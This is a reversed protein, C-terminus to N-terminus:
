DIVMMDLAIQGFRFVMGMELDELGNDQIHLELKSYTHLDIKERRQHIM